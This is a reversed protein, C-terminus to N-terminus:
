SATVGAAIEHLLLAAENSADEDKMAVGAAVEAEYRAGGLAARLSAKASENHARWFSFLPIATRRRIQEANGLLRCAQGPRGHREAIYGCGEISGAIGRLHGVVIANRWAAHWHAAAAAYEARQFYALGIYMDIFHHQHADGGLTRVARLIRIAEDVEQRGMHWWGRALGAAGRLLPDGLDRAIHEATRLHPEAEGTRGQHVVWMALFASAYAHTWRDEHARAVRLADILAPEPASAPSFVSLVGRCMLAQGRERYAPQDGSQLARNVLGLGFAVAGHAKFHLMLDGAIRLAAAQDNGAALAHSCASEINGHERALSAIRERMRDGLMDQRAAGAMHLVHALHADRAQQEDGLAALQALAFERVTELLRYRPPSLAQDVAVLSKNALGTLLDVLAEATTGFRSALDIVADVTWGQVFVSLWALLRQEDASLLGFSWELLAMLNRHRLDRGAVDSVLFRFRHELRELVQEPSLLAFRAAALELALPMGDLRECIDVIVPANAATLEFNTQTDRIRAILLAVAPTTSIEALERQDAPHRIIPLRLPPLRLTREGVFHLRQQSTALITLQDTTRMLEVVLAGLQTSLRDCNDLILLLRRGSLSRAVQELLDAGGSPAIALGLALAQLWDDATRLPVLDFFWIGDPYRDAQWHAFALACQTKGMGGTGLITLSRGNCLLSEIQTLEQERGILDQLRAPLRASPPPGFRARPEAAPTIREAPGVYRYGAGHVTQILKPGGADDLLARRALSIVRNLTSPTVYQHGWVADLLQDRTLLEGSRMVLQALVAFVKPELAHVTGGRTFRRNGVDFECDGCRYIVYDM